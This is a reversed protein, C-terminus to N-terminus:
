SNRSIKNRVQMALFQHGEQLPLDVKDIAGKISAYNLDKTISIKKFQELSLSNELEQTCISRYQEMLKAAGVVKNVSVNYNSEGNLSRVPIMGDKVPGSCTVCHEGTATNSNSSITLIDGAELSEVVSKFNEDGRQAYNSGLSKKFFDRMYPCSTNPHGGYGYDKAIKQPDPLINQLIDDQCQFRAYMAGAVCYNMSGPLGGRTYVSDFINKVVKDRKGVKKANRIENQLSTINDMIKIQLQESKANVIKEILQTRQYEAAALDDFSNTANQETKDHVVANNANFNNATTNGTPAITAASFMITTIMQKLKPAARKAKERLFDSFPKYTKKLQKKDTNEKAKSIVASM